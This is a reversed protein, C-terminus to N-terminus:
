KKLSSTSSRVILNVDIVKDVVKEGELLNLLMIVSEKGIEYADQKVSTLSPIVMSAISENDYGIVSIDEPVSIGQELFLKTTGAAVLDNPAVIGDINMSNSVIDMAAKYGSDYEYSCMIVLSPDYEIGEEKLAKLYGKFRDLTTYLGSLDSLSLELINNSDCPPEWFGALFCIKRRKLRLLYKTSIYGGKVNDTYIHPVNPFVKRRNAVIIPIKNFYEIEKILDASSFPSYILGDIYSNALNEFLEKENAGSSKASSVILNHNSKQAQVISGSVIASYFPHAVDPVHIGITGTRQGKMSRAALNPKYNLVKSADLVAKSYKPNVNDKGNLVRSVTAISVNAKQAVDKITVCKKM